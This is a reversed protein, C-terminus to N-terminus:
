ATHTTAILHLGAELAHCQVAWWREGWREVPTAPHAPTLTRPVLVTCTAVAVPTYLYWTGDAQPRLQMAYRMQTWELWSALAQIPMQHRQAARWNAEILPRSYSAFSVPHSNITVPTYYRTAAEAILTDTVAVAQAVNWKFSFVYEPHILCEETWLTPQQWCDILQGDEAVFPAPRGSGCLYGLYPSVALYNCEMRVGLEALIRAADVYGLWRVAHQRISHVHAGYQQTHRTVNDRLMDAVVHPQAVSTDLGVVIDSALAPHVGVDHGAAQWRAVDAPQVRSQPVLYFTCTAQHEALAAILCEFEAVSSWDDDSTMLMTSQQTAVPYYWLRPQPALRHVLLALLATYIDAQPLHARHPDLQHVFLESPRYIGDLGATHCDVLAPDGHRLRAVTAAMDFSLCLVQGAGHCLHVLAPQTGVHGWCSAQAPMEWCLAPTLLDLTIAAPLHPLLQADVTVAGHPVVRHHSRFGLVGTLQPPPMVCLLRSGTAVAALIIDVHAPTLAMRPLVILDVGHLMAPSLDALEVETLATLGEIRLLAGLYHSYRSQHQRSDHLLLM